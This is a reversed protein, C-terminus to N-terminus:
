QVELFKTASQSPLGPLNTWTNVEIGTKGDTSVVRLRCGDHPSNKGVISDGVVASLMKPAASEVNRGDTRMVLLVRPGPVTFYIDVGAPTRELRDIWCFALASTDSAFVLLAAALATLFPRKLV